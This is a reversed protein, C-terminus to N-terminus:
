QISSANLEAKKFLKKVAERKKIKQLAQSFKEALQENGPKKSFALFLAVRDVPHSDYSFQDILNLNQLTHLAINKYAIVFDIRKAELKLFNLRLSSVKEKKFLNSRDFEEGYSYGYITGIRKGSLSAIGDFKFNEDKRQFLVIDIISIPENPFILSQERNKTKVTGLIGDSKKTEAMRLAREWPVFSLNYSINMEKFVLDLIECYVGKNEGNVQYYLPPFPDTILTLKKQAMLPYPTFLTLLMITAILIKM